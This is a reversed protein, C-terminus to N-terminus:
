PQAGRVKEREWQSLNETLFLRLCGGSPGQLANGLADFLRPDLPVLTFSDIGVASVGEFLPTKLTFSDIGVASVGEFLPTKHVSLFSSDIGANM